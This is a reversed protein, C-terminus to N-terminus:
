SNTVQATIRIDCGIARMDTIQLSVRDQMADLGPMHFLGRASDGMLHPAMYIILEDVLGSQLMAGALTMGTELMVENVQRDALKKLVSQLNLGGNDSEVKVLEVGAKVLLPWNKDTKDAATMILVQGELSLMRADGPCRLESDLIVRLPQRVPEVGALDSAALRVNMSPNDALVTGIGTLIASSRARLFQVDKRSAESTIWQSEGSAMATRGDLSMALKCRVFPRGRQMRSIFGPNLAEAENKLLGTDVGIGAAQLRALGQGAVQPNPDQMAVVARSIGAEILADACPPTRGQHSCPELTVYATAGAAKSGADRLAQVEAHSEGAKAHWGRGVVEDQNVLVCGVRPNPDTTYLGRRALQLAESMYAHDNM